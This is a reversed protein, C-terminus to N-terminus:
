EHSVCLSLHLSVPLPLLLPLLLSWVPLRIHSELIMDKASPLRKVASGGLCGQFEPKICWFDGWMVDILRMLEWTNEDSFKELFAM